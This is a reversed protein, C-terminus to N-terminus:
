VFCIDPFGTVGRLIPIVFDSTKMSKASLVLYNDDAAKVVKIDESNIDCKNGIVIVPEKECKKQWYELNEYSVTSTVDFMLVTLDGKAILPHDSNYKEQGAYDYFNLMITGYNTEFVSQYVDCGVSAIYRPKFSDSKMRRIWATKGVGGDGFLNINYTTM